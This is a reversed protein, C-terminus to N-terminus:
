LKMSELYASKWKFWKELGKQERQSLSKSKAWALRSQLGGIKHM